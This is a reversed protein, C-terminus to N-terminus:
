RKLLLEEPFGHKDLFTKSDAAKKVFFPDTGYNKVKSDGKPKATKAKLQKKKGESIM